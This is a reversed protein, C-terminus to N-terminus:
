DLITLVPLLSNSTFVYKDIQKKIDEANIAGRSKTVNIVEAVLLPHNITKKSKMIRVIAAQTEYQRDAAVREHTQKNEEKTEKLQIQNIKIRYKPDSFNMNVVFKDTTNVDKGKPSKTLVRYRACALSQLTRKLENDDLKTAAKIEDYAVGEDTVKDNFYLMVIAQFGSVVIEKRGKPFNATMQCHSQAHKWKLMRGAYKSKYYAEYEATAKQIAVPIEIEVDNYTPWAASSCVNVTLDVDPRGHRAEVVNRFGLNEERAMEIDKFMQELNHTFNPGCENKLRTLMSKEADASASRNMLLRKALATKYFAEFVAKGHVFRFLELVQDLQKSIQDDEDMDDNDAEQEDTTSAKLSDDVAIQPIAKSGGRLIMDVYKAIMEGPKENDTGWTMNSKQTKNMFAEFSERLTHGLDANKSFCNEWVTDLKKKFQLLRPVMEVERKEDFIISSGTARIYKEFPLQLGLNKQVLQLLRYLQQLTQFQNSEMLDAVEKEGTLKVEQKSVLLTKMQHELDRQTTEELGYTKCRRIERSMLLQVAEVYQPLDLASAQEAQWQTFYRNSATLLSAEVVQSYTILIQSMAVAEKFLTSDSTQLNDQMRDKALLYCIGETIKDKLESSDFVHMKFLEIGLDDISPKDPSRLLYSRDM